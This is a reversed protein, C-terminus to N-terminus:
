SKKISVVKSLLSEKSRSANWWLMRKVRAKQLWEIQISIWHASIGSPRPRSCLFLNLTENKLKVSTISVFDGTPRMIICIMPAKAANSRSSIRSIVRASGRFLELQFPLLGRARRLTQAAMRSELTRAGSSAVGTTCRFIYWFTM